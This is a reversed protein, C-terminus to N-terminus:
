GTRQRRYAEESNRGAACCPQYVIGAKKGSSEQIRVWDFLDKLVDFAGQLWGSRM